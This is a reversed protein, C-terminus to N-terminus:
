KCSNKNINFLKYIGDLKLKMKKSKGVVDDKLYSRSEIIKYVKAKNLNLEIKVTTKGKDKMSNIEEKNLIIKGKTIYKYNYKYLDSFYYMKEEIEIDDPDIYNKEFFALVTNNNSNIEKEIVVRKVIDKKYYITYKNNITYTDEKISDSCKMTDYHFINILVISIIILIVIIVSIITKKNMKSKKKM